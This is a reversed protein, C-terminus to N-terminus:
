IYMCVCVCLCVCACVCMCVCVYVCMIIYTTDYQYYHLKIDLVTQYNLELSIRM